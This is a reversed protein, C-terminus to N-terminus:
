VAASAFYFNTLAQFQTHRKRTLSYCTYTGMRISSNKGTFQASAMHRASIESRRKKHVIIEDSIVLNHQQERDLIDLTCTCLPHDVHRYPITRM